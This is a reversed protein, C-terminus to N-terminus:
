CRSAGGSIADAAARTGKYVIKGAFGAARASAAAAASDAICVAGRLQDIKRNRRNIVDLEKQGRDREALLCDKRAQGKLGPCLGSGAANVPVTNALIGFSILFGFTRNMM